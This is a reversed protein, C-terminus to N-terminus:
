LQSFIKETSSTGITDAGADLMAMVDDLTRIGGAAKIKIRNGAVKKMLSVSEVTAGSRGWGTSTKVFSAGSDIAIKCATEIEDDTLACVEIIVKIKAGCEETSVVVGAIDHAVESLDHSKLASINMVMDIERAGIHALRGAEYAKAEALSSGHPFSLVSVPLVSSGELNRVALRLANPRVVLARAGLGRALACGEIIDERTSVPSLVSHEIVGALEARDTSRDEGSM